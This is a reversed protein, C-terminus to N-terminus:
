CSVALMPVAVTTRPTRPCVSYSKTYLRKFHYQSFCWVYMLLCFIFLFHSRGWVGFVQPRFYLCRGWLNQLTPAIAGMSDAGIDAMKDNKWNCKNQWQTKHYIIQQHSPFQVSINCNITNIHDACTCQTECYVPAGSMKISPQLLVLM